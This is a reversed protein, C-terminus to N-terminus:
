KVMTCTLISLYLKIVFHFMLRTKSSSRSGSGSCLLCLIIYHVAWKCICFCILLTRINQAYLSSACFIKLVSNMSNCELWGRFLLVKKFSFFWLMITKMVWNSTPVFLSLTILCKMTARAINKTTTKKTLM